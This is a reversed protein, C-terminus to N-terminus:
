SWKLGAHKENLKFAFWQKMNKYNLNEEFETRIAAVTEASTTPVRSRRGYIMSPTIGRGLCRMGRHKDEGFKEIFLNHLEQPTDKSEKLEPRSIELEEIMRQTTIDKAGKHSAMFMSIRDTAEGEVDERGWISVLVPLQSEVVSALCNDLREEDTTYAYYGNKKVRCELGEVGCPRGNADFDILLKKVGWNCTKKALGRGKRKGNVNSSSSQNMSADGNSSGGTGSFAQRAMQLEKTSWGSLNAYGPFYNITWILSARLTFMENKSADYTVGDVWLEKLEEILSQLYVDIKNGPEKPGQTLVFLIFNDQKMCLWPPLNYPIVIVPWTHSISMSKFPNFGDTALGLRVNRADSAFDPYTEDFHKWVRSDVPHRFIGDDVRMKKEATQNGKKGGDVKKYRSAGYFKREDLKENKNHYLM